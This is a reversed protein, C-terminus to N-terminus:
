LAYGERRVLSHASRILSSYILEVKRANRATVTERNLQLALSKGGLKRAIWSRSFGVKLMRNILKWTEAAPVLAGGACTEKGVALIRRETEARIHTKRGSKIEQLCTEGVKSAISATRRGCGAQSLKLLHRRARRASVLGNWRGAKREALRM